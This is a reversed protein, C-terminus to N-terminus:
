RGQPCRAPGNEAWLEFNSDPSECRKYGSELVQRVARDFEGDLYTDRRILVLGAGHMLCDLMEEGYRPLLHPYNYFFRCSLVAGEPISARDILKGGANVFALSAGGTAGDLATIRDGGENLDGWRTIGQALALPGEAHVLLSTGVMVPLMAACVLLLSMATSRSRPPKTIVFVALAAGLSTAAGVLYQYHQFRPPFQVVLVIMASLALATNLVVIRVRQSAGHSRQGDPRDRGLLAVIILLALSGLSALLFAVTDLGPNVFALFAKMDLISPMGERLIAGYEGNYEIIDIWGLLSGQLQALMAIILAALAFGAVVRLHESKRVGGSRRRSYASLVVDSSVVALLVVAGSVKVSCSLAFVIGSAVPFRSILGVALVALAIAINETYTSLFSPSAAYVVAAFAAIVASKRWSVIPRIGFYVGVSLVLVGILGALYLGTIEGLRYFPRTLAFFGWDKHDWVDGYLVAGRAMWEQVFIWVAIDDRWPGFGTTRAAVFVTAFVLAMATLTNRFGMAGSLVVDSLKRM